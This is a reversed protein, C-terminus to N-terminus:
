TVVCTNEKEGSKHTITVYSKSMEQVIGASVQPVNRGLCGLAEKGNMLPSALMLEAIDRYGVESTLEITEM